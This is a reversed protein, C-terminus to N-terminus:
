KLATERPVQANREEVHRKLLSDILLKARTATPRAVPNPDWCEMMCQSIGRTVQFTLYNDDLLRLRMFAASVPWKGWREDLTPRTKNECVVEKMEDYDPDAGVDQHYPLAHGAPPEEAGLDTQRLVEWMVLSFSYIDSCLFSEFSTGGRM